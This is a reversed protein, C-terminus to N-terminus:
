NAGNTSVAVELWNSGGSFSNGFDVATIFLGNTVGVASNTVPGAVPNGGTSVTYLRFAIDYHGGAPVGGAGLLGQYTFATGQAFLSPQLNLASLLLLLAPTLILKQYQTKM